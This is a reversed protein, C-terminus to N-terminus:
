FCNFCHEIQSEDQIIYKYKHIKIQEIWSVPNRASQLKTSVKSTTCGLAPNFHANGLLTTHGLHWFLWVVKEQLFNPGYINAFEYIYM